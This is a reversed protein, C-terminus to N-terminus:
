RMKKAEELRAIAIEKSEKAEKISTEILNKQHEEWKEQRARIRQDRCRSRYDREIQKHKLMVRAELAKRRASERAVELWNERDLRQLEWAVQKELLADEQRRQWQAERRRINYERKWALMEATSHVEHATGTAAPGMSLKGVM